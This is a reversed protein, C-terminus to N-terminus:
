DVSAGSERAAQSWVQVNNKLGEYWQAATLAPGIPISGGDFIIKCM